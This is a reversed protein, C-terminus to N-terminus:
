AWLTAARAQSTYNGGRLRLSLAMNLQQQSASPAVGMTSVSPKLLTGASRSGTGAEHDFGETSVGFAADGFAADGFAASSGCFFVSSPVKWMLTSALGPSLTPKSTAPRPGNMRTFAMEAPMMLSQFALFGFSASCTPSKITDTLPTSPSAELEASLCKGTSRAKCCFSGRSMRTRRWAQTGQGTLAADWRRSVDGCKYLHMRRRVTTTGGHRGQGAQAGM